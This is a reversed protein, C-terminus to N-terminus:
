PAKAGFSLLKGGFGFCAGCSKRYWRPCYRNGSSQQQQVSYINVQAIKASAADTGNYSAASFLSPKHPAWQVEFSNQQASLDCWTEPSGSAISTCILRNDKGCSLILNPDMQQTGHRQNWAVGLVGKTHPATEKFPYQCNRLDWMQISPQRDDDYCLLLQTPVEPHWAVSACRLRGAPDQFTIVEKKQKLDWVVTAGTNSCSCLIHPVIRNWACCLVESGQHKNTNSPEFISPASPNEVNVIKVESDSGCTAMLNSKLPHFEVCHVEGKHVPQSHVLGSDQGNSSLISHPNWLSVVGDQLGGALLGYPCAGDIGLKGWSITSFRRGGETRVAAQVEMDAGSRGADFSVFELSADSGSAGGLASAASHASSGLALLTPAAEAPCWAVTATRQIQKLPQSMRTTGDRCNGPGGVGRACAKQTNGLVAELLEPGNVDPLTLQLEYNEPDTAGETNILLVVSDPGLGVMTELDGDVSRMEGAQASAFGCAANWPEIVLFTPCDERYRAAFYGVVAAAMSGVGMHSPKPMSELSEDVMATYGQMIWEPIETYGPATTDQLVIWGKERGQQFALEVTSDYNMDTIRAAWAVGRGHNGDTATVFTTVGFREQYLKQIVSAGGLLEDKVYVDVVGPFSDSVKVLPTAQEPGFAREAPPPILHIKRPLDAESDSEAMGKFKFGRLQPILHIVMNEQLKQESGPDMKFFEAEGWDTYFGIGISYGSRLSMTGAPALGELTARAKADVERASVGPKMDTMAAEMAKAVLAEAKALIDPLKTGVYCTRMMAAHYREFCGGVELFLVEGERLRSSHSGTYHGLCGNQGACVFPPYAPYEGAACVRAARRLVALEAASKVLRLGPVLPSADCLKWGLLRAKDMGSEYDAYVHLNQQSLNSRCTANTVEQPEGVTQYGTLYFINEPETLLLLDLDWLPSAAFQAVRGLLDQAHSVPRFALESVHRAVSTPLLPGVAVYLWNNYGVVHEGDQRLMALVTERAVQQSPSVMTPIRFILSPEEGMVSSFETSTAGPMSVTVGIGAPALEHHLSRGLSTLFAKSAGYVAVHPTGPSMSVISSVLVIHGIKKHRQHEQVDLQSRVQMDKGVLRALQMPSVMNLQVSSTLADMDADVFSGPLAAGANLVLVDIKEALESAALINHLEQAAGEQALDMSVVEVARRATSHAAAFRQLRDKRRAVLVLNCSTLNLLEKAIDQGIGSSAGTVLAYGSGDARCGPSVPGSPLQPLDAGDLLQALVVFCVAAVALTRVVCLTLPAPLLSLILFFYASAPTSNLVRHLLMWDSLLAVGTVEALFLSICVGLALHRLWLWTDGTGKRSPAM